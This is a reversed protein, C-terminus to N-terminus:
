SSKRGIGFYMAASEGIASRERLQGGLPFKFIDTRVTLRGIIHYRKTSPQLAFALNRARRVSM